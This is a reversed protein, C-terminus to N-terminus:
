EGGELDRSSTFVVRRERAAPVLGPAKSHHRGSASRSPEHPVQIVDVTSMGVSEIVSIRQRGVYGKDGKRHKQHCLSSGLCRTGACAPALALAMHVCACMCRPSCSRFRGRLNLAQVHPEKGSSALLASSGSGDVPHQLHLTCRTRCVSPLSRDGEEIEVGKSADCM